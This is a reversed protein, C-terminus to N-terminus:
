CAISVYGASRGLSRGGQTNRYIENSVEGYTITAIKGTKIYVNLNKKVHAILIEELRKQHANIEKFKKNKIICM